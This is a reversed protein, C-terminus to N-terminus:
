WRRPYSAESVRTGSGGELVKADRESLIKWGDATLVWRLEQLVAGRREGRPGGLVYSKRFRM